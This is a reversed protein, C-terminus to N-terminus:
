DPVCAECNVALISRDRCLFATMCLVNLFLALRNLACRTVFDHICFCIVSMNYLRFPVDSSDELFAPCLIRMVFRWDVFSPRSVNWSYKLPM